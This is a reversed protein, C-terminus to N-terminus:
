KIWCRYKSGLNFGFSTVMIKKCVRPHLLNRNANEDITKKELSLSIVALEEQSCFIVVERKGQSQYVRRRKLNNKLM